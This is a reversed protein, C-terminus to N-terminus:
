GPLNDIYAGRAPLGGDLDAFPTSALPSPQVNPWTGGPQGAGYSFLTNIKSKYINSLLDTHLTPKNGIKVSGHFAPGDAADLDFKGGEHGRENEGLVTTHYGPAHGYTYGKTLLGVHLDVSGLKKGEGSADGFIRGPKGNLDQFPSNSDGGPTPGVVETSNGHTYTSTKTLSDIHKQSAATRELQFEPGAVGDLDQYPSKNPAPTYTQGSNDSKVNKTLMQVMQDMKPGRVTNFPSDSTGADTIYMGDSPPNQGVPPGEIGLVNRDLISIKNKLAM